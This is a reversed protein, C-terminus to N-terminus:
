QRPQAQAGGLRGVLEDTDGSLLDDLTYPCDDSLPEPPQGDIRMRNVAKRAQQYLGVIDLRQRMSPAFREAAETQFVGLENRWHECASSSPWGHLKMMQLLLQRLHARVAALASLGVDEIEEVVHVWDVENVREGRAARRLLAAQQEAWELLDRDYLDDPM